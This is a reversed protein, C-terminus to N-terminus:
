RLPRHPPCRASPVHNPRRAGIRLCGFSNADTVLLCGALMSILYYHNNYTSSDLMWQWTYMILFVLCSFRYACGCAIFLASSILVFAHIYLWREGRVWPVWEWYDYPYRMETDIYNSAYEGTLVSALKAIFIVLGFCIRFLGLPAPDTKRFLWDVPVWRNVPPPLPQPLRRTYQVPGYYGYSNTHLRCFDAGRAATARLVVRWTAASGAVVLTYPHDKSDPEPVEKFDPWPADAWTFSEELATGLRIAARRLGGQLHVALRVGDPLPKGRYEDEFGAMLWRYSDVDRIVVYAFLTEPLGETRGALYSKLLPVLPALSQWGHRITESFVAIARKM